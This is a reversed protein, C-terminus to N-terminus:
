ASAALERQETPAVEAAEAAPPTAAVQAERSEVRRARPRPRPREVPAEEDDEEDETPPVPRPGAAVPARAPRTPVRVPAPAPSAVTRAVPAQPPQVAAPQAVPAASGNPEEAQAVPNGDPGIEPVAIDFGMKQRIINWHKDFDGAALDPVRPDLVEADALGSLMWHLKELAEQKRNQKTLGFVEVVHPRFGQDMGLFRLGDVIAPIREVDSAASNIKPAHRAVFGDPITVADDESQPAQQQPAQQPVQQQPPPGGRSHSVQGAVQALQQQRSVSRQQVATGANGATIASALGSGLDSTLLSKAFDWFGGGAEEQQQPGAEGSFERQLLKFLRFNEITKEFPDRNADKPVLMERLQPIMGFMDKITLADGNQAGILKAMDALDRIPDREQKPARLSEVLLQTSQRQQELMLQLVPTLPDVAPAPPPAPLPAPPIMAQMMRDDDAREALKQIMSMLVPDPGTPRNREMMMMMMMMMGMSSDGGGKKPDDGNLQKMATMMELMEKVPSRQNEQAQRQQQDLMMKQMIEFMERTESPPKKSDESKPALLRVSGIATPARTPNIPDHQYLHYEGHGYDAVVYRHLFAEITGSGALDTSSYDNVFDLRADAGRKFVHIRLASPLMADVVARAQTISKGPKQPVPRKAGGVGAGPQAPPAAEYGFMPSASSAGPSHGASGNPSLSVEEEDGPIMAALAQPDIQTKTTTM